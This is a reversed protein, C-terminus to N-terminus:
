RATVERLAAVLAEYHFDMALARIREAAEPSHQSAESALETVRPARAGVASVGLIAIGLLPRIWDFLRRIM